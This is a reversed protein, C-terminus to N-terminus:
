LIDGRGVYLNPLDTCRSRPEPTKFLRKFFVTLNNSTQFLEFCVECCVWVSTVIQIQGNALGTRWVDFMLKSAPESQKLSLTVSLTFCYVIFLYFFAVRTLSFTVNSCSSGSSAVRYILWRSRVFSAPLFACGGAHWEALHVGHRGGSIVLQSATGGFKFVFVRQMQECCFARMGPLVLLSSAAPECVSVKLPCLRALLCSALAAWRTQISENKTSPKFVRLQGLQESYLAHGPAWRHNVCRCKRRLLQLHQAKEGVWIGRHNLPEEAARYAKLPCDTEM